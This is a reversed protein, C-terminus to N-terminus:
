QVVFTKVKSLGTYSSEYSVRLFDPKNLQIKRDGLEPNTTRIPVLFIYDFYELQNKNNKGMSGGFSYKNGESSLYREADFLTNVYVAFSQIDTLDLTDIESSFGILNKEAIRITLATDISNLFLTDQNEFDEMTIFNSSIVLHGLRIEITPEPILDDKKCAPIVLVGLILWILLKWKM